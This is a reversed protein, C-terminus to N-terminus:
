DRVLAIGLVSSIRDVYAMCRYVYVFAASVQDYEKRQTLAEEDMRKLLLTLRQMEVQVDWIGIM